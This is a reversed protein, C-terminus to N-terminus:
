KYQNNSKTSYLMKFNILNYTTSNKAYDIVVLFGAM